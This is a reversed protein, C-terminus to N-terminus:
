YWGRVAFNIPNSFTMNNDQIFVINKNIKYFRIKEEVSYRFTNESLVIHVTENNTEKIETLFHRLDVTYKICSSLNFFIFHGCNISAIIICILFLNKNRKKSYDSTM